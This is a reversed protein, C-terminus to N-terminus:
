YTVAGLIDCTIEYDCVEQLKGEQVVCGSDDQALSSTSNKDGLFLEIRAIDIGGIEFVKEINKKVPIVDNYFRDNLSYGLNIDDIAKNNVIFKVKGKQGGEVRKGELDM